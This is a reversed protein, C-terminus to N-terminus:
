RHVRARLGFAFLGLLLPGLVRAAIQIWEAGISPVVAASNPLLLASRFVFVLCQEFSASVPESTKDSPLAGIHHILDGHDIWGAALLALAAFVALPRGPRVGYGGLLRYLELLLYSGASLTFAGLSSPNALEERAQQRRMEMEGYYFDAAGPADRMDERAKRLGRYIRALEIRDVAPAEIKRGPKCSDGYWGSKPRQKGRLAHEEAIVERHTRPGRPAREFAVGSEIRLADIGEAGALHLPRVDFGSIVVEGLDGGRLSLLRPPSMKVGVPRPGRLLLRFGNNLHELMLDGGGFGIQLPALFRAESFDAHAAVLSFACPSRVVAGGFDISQEARLPGIRSAGMIAVSSFCASGRCFFEGLDIYDEFEAYSFVADGEVNGGHLSVAGLFHTSRMVLDGGVSWDTLRARNGFSAGTFDPTGGFSARALQAKEGFYAGGFDVLALFAVETFSV